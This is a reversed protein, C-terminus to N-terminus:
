YSANRQKRGTLANKISAKAECTGSITKRASDPIGYYVINDTIGINDTMGGKVASYSSQLESMVSNMADTVDYMNKKLHESRNLYGECGSLFPNYTGDLYDQDLDDVADMIYVISTLHTFLDRLYESDGEGAIDGLPASLAEGFTRGMRVADGEDSLEMRRLREFGIGVADDYDPYMKEAKSIARGLTLNILNTKISPDDVADDVLEWKTLLITYAAMKKMLDSDSSPGKFVCFPSNPTPGIDKPSGIISDLIITNFTMDYNVAATSVLGFNSRLQHCTECYYRRYITLDSPSMKSYLPVTYGFM